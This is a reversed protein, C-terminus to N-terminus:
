GLSYAGCGEADHTPQMQSVQDRERNRRGLEREIEIRLAGSAGRLADDGYMDILMRATGPTTSRRGFALQRPNM